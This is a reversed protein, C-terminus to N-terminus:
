PCTFATGTLHLWGQVRSATDLRVYNAGLDAAQNRMVNKASAMPNESFGNDAGTVDGVERCNPAPDAKMVAVSSGARTLAVTACGSLVLPLVLAFRFLLNM